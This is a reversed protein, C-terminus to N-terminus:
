MPTCYWINFYSQYVQMFISDCEKEHVGEGDIAEVLIIVIGEIRKKRGRLFFTRWGCKGM